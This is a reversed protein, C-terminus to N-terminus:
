SESSSRVLYDIEWGRQLGRPGMRKETRQGRKCVIRLTPLRGEKGRGWLLSPHSMFHRIQSVGRAVAVPPLRLCRVSVAVGSDFEM